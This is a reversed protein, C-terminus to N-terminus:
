HETQGTDGVRLANLRKGEIGVRWVAAFSGFFRLAFRRTGQGEFSYSYAPNQSFSFWFSALTLNPNRASVRVGTAKWSAEKVHRSKHGKRGNVAERQQGKIDTQRDSM